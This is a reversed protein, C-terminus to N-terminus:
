IAGRQGGAAIGRVREELVGGGALVVRGDGAGVHLHYRVRGARTRTRQEDPHARERRREREEGDGPPARRRPALLPSPAIRPGRPIARGARPQCQTRDGVSILRRGAVNVRAAPSRTCGATATAREAPSGMRRTHSSPSTAPVLVM